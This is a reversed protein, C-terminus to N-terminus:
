QLPENMCNKLQAWAKQKSDADALSDEFDEVSVFRRGFVECQGGSVFDVLSDDNTSAFAGSLAIRADEDLTVIVLPDVIECLLRLEDPTLQSQNKPALLVGFWTRTDKSGFGWGLTGFAKDLALGDAGSFPVNGKREAEGPRGKLAMLSAFADGSRYPAFPALRNEITSRLDLM